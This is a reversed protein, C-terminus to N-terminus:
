SPWSRTRIPRCSCGAVARTTSADGTRAAATWTPRTARWRPATGSARRASRSAPTPTRSDANWASPNGVVAGDEIHFANRTEGEWGEFSAGNFIATFSTEPLVDPLAPSPAPAALPVADGAVQKAAEAAQARVAEAKCTGAAQELLWKAMRRQEEPLQGSIRAAAAVAEAEVSPDSLYPQVMALGATSKVESLASLLLRREGADAGVAKNLEALWGLLQPSPRPLDSALGSALGIAGRLARSRTAPEKMAALLAPVATADPWNSLSELASDRVSADPDSMAPKVAKLAAYGGVMALMRVIRARRAAQDSTSNAKLAAILPAARANPDALKSAAARVAQVASEFASADRQDAAAAVLGNLDGARALGILATFAAKRVGPDPDAGLKLVADHATAARRKGLIGVLRARAAPKASPLREVIAADVGEASLRTLSAAAVDAQADDTAVELAKLLVPVSSARGIVGLAAVATARVGPSGSGAQAEIAALAAADSREVLADTLLAQMEPRASAAQAALLRTIDSGPLDRAARLAMRATPTDSSQLMEALLPEGSKDAWANASTRRVLIAGRTAALRIHRAVEARRLGDYLGSAGRRDGKARLSDACLLLADGAAARAEPLPAKLVGKLAAVADPTGIRGLAATAANAQSRDAGKALRVLAPTAAADRKAGISNIVGILLDGKLRGLAARLAQAASPDAIIELANRAYASLEADGLLRALPAVAEKPALSALVRCAQAKEYKPADGQLTAILKGVDPAQSGRAVPALMLAVCLVSLSALRRYFSM